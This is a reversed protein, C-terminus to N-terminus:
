RTPNVFKGSQAMAQAPNTIKVEAPAAEEEKPKKANQITTTVEKGGLSKFHKAYEKLFADGYEAIMSILFQKRVDDKGEANLLKSGFKKPDTLNDKLITPDVPFNFAEDGEGFVFKKNEALSKFFADGDIIAKYQELEQQQKAATDDVAAPEAVKAEPPKPLLFSKQSDSFKDRLIDVDAELLLRGNEITAEDADEILGYSEMKRKYLLELQKPNAKPYDQRLQHRMVEEAPMKSFDTTLAQLYATVNGNAQWHEILAAMEPPLEKLTKVLAVKKDDGLVEKLVADPQEKLVEQWTPTPVEPKKEEIPLNTAETESKEPAKKSEAKEEKTETTENTTEVPTEVKAETSEPKKETIVNPVEVQSNPSRLVGSNAMAQAPTMQVVEETAAAENPAADFFKRFFTNM